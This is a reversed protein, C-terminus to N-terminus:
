ADSMDEVCESCIWIATIDDMKLGKSINGPEIPPIYTSYISGEEASFGPSKCLSCFESCDPSSLKEQIYSKLFDMRM